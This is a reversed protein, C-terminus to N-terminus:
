NRGVRRDKRAYRCCIPRGDCQTSSGPVYLPDLHIDSYHVIKIADKGGPQPRGANSPASPFPVNWAQVDPYGCVGLFTTCFAKSTRSGVSIKRIAAAVIPGELAVAGDCVDDPM